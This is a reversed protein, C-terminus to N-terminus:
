ANPNAGFASIGLTAPQFRQTGTGDDQVDVSYTGPGAAGGFPSVASVDVYYTGGTTTRVVVQADDHLGSSDDEVAIADGASNHLDLRLHSLTGAHSAAGRVNIVYTHGANLQVRFWDHDGVIELNGGISSGVAVFGATDPTNGFDDAM